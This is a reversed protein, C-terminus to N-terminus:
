KMKIQSIHKNRIEEGPRSLPKLTQLISEFNAKIIESESMKNYIDKFHCNIGLVHDEDSLNKIKWKGRSITTVLPVIPVELKIFEGLHQVHSKNQMLPNFFFSKKNGIYQVWKRSKANGYINGGYNKCELVFLGKKSVVLLDIESTKGDKTPVYVNRLIQDKPIGLEHILANYVTREGSSGADKWEEPHRIKDIGHNFFLWIIGALLFLVLSAVIVILSLQNIFIDRM